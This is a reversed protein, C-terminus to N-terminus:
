GQSFSTSKKADVLIVQANDLARSLRSAMNLGAAGAGAVVIRVRKGNQAAAPVPNLATAGMAALAAASGLFHRRRM